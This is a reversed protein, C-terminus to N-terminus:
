PQLLVKIDRREDMAAYAAPAQELPLKSTFVRGPDIERRLILDILEPLYRRVPAPGGFLHVESGFLLRGPIEVGHNVGVFGVYTALFEPDLELVAQWGEDWEGHVRLYEAKIEEQRPTLAMDGM